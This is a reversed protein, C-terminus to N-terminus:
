GDIDTGFGDATLASVIGDVLSRARSDALDPEAYDLQVLLEGSRVLGTVELRYSRPNSPGRECGAPVPLPTFLGTGDREGDHGLLGAASGLFNVSAEPAPLRALRSRGAPDPSLYRLLGYGEGGGPQEFAALVQTLADPGCRRYRIPLVTTFWGVSRAFGAADRGHGEAELGVEDVGAWEALASATAALLLHHVRAGPRTSSSLQGVPVTRAVRRTQAVIGNGTVPAPLLRAGPDPTLATLWGDAQSGLRPSAALEALQGARDLFSAGTAPLSIPQGALRQRCATGLEDLLVQWSVFDVVLHHAALCLLLGSPGPAIAAVLLPGNELDIVSQALGVLEDGDEAQLIKIPQAAPEHWQQWGQGASGAPRYRLRFAPHREAVATLAQGLLEPEITAAVQLLLVQNWHAPETLQQDLLWRQVPTLPVSEATAAEATATEATATEAIAAEAPAPPPDSRTAVAALERVTPYTFLQRATVIIQAEAAKSVISLASISDGDLDFYDDEPGVHEVKLVDQWISALQRELESEVALESEAVQETAASAPEPPRPVLCLKGNDAMGLRDVVFVEAPVLYEPLQQRLAERLGTVGAEGAEVYAVSRGPEDGALVVARTVSPLTGLLRAVEARDVPYGRLETRQSARGLVRLQGDATIAGIDGTDVLVEDNSGLQIRGAVGAACDRQWSDLVRVVQGPVSRGAPLVDWSDEAAGVEGGTVTVGEYEYRHSVPADAGALRRWRHVLAATLVEGGLLLQRATVPAAGPRELEPLAAALEAPTLEVTDYGPARTLLAAVEDADVVATGSAAEVSLLQWRAREPRLSARIPIRGLPTPLQRLFAAETLLAQRTLMTPRPPGEVGCTHGILEPLQAPEADFEPWTSADLEAPRLGFGDLTRGPDSALRGILEEFAGGIRPVSERHYLDTNYEWAISVDGDGEHVAGSFDYVIGRQRLAVSTLRLPGIDLRHGAEGSLFRTAAAMAPDHAKSQGFALEVLPARSRDRRRGLREVVQEFPLTQHDLGALAQDRVTHLLQRFSQRPELRARLVVPNVFYGLMESFEQRQRNTTIMAISVDSEDTYAQMLVLFGALLVTYITTQEAAALERVARVTAPSLSQLYTAGRQSQVAPRPLDRPLELAPAPAALLQQWYAWDAQGREGEVQATLWALYDVYDYEGPAAPVDGALAARYAEGLERLLVSTSWFDTAIHHVVVLLVPMGTTPQFLRVRVPPAARLDFVEFAADNLREALAEDTVAVTDLDLESHELVRQFPVGDRAGYSTRLAMHRDTLAQFARGLADPDCGSDVRAAFAQNYAASDPALQDAHWLSLQNFSMPFEGVRQELLPLPGLDADPDADTLRDLIAQVSGAGLLEPLGISVGFGDQIAMRLRVAALSDLPLARAPVTEDTLEVETATILGLQRVFESRVLSRREDRELERWGPPLVSAEDDPGLAASLEGRRIKGLATRPIQEVFRYRVPVKYDTLQEACLARLETLDTGAIAIVAAALLNGGGRVPVGVVAADTVAPHGLLVREVEVPNVKHGGTDILIRKRGTISLRGAGDLRGLDGTLYGHVAPSTADPGLEAYGRMVAASRVVVEGETGAPVSTGADDVVEVVVGDLPRGVTGPAPEPDRDWCVSGAESSGYTQRIAVGYRDGFRRRTEEALFNSGSLCLRLSSLDAPVRGPLDALAEFIYPVAIFIAARHKRILEITRGVYWPYDATSEGEEEVLVLTAGAYVAAIMCCFQGLAHFLPVPCVIVDEARLNASRAIHAAEAAQNAQSRCVLRPEGTSGSTMTYVWDGDPNSKDTVAATPEGSLLDEFSLRDAGGGVVVVAPPQELEAILEDWVAVDAAAILVVAHGQARVLELLERPALRPNVAHVRVDLGATAFYSVVFAPCNPLALLIRDGAVVGLRQLGAQTALLQRLLEGYSLQEDGLVVAARGAHQDATTRLMQNIM